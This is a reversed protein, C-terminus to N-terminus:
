QFYEPDCIFLFDSLKRDGGSGTDFPEVFGVYINTRYKMNDNEM